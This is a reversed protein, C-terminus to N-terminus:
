AVDICRCAYVRTATLFILYTKSKTNQPGINRTCSCNYQASCFTLNQNQILIQPLAHKSRTINLKHRTDNIEKAFKIMWTLVSFSSLLYVCKSLNIHFPGFHDRSGVLLIKTCASLLINVKDNIFQLNFFHHIQLNYVINNTAMCSSIGKIPLSSCDADECKGIRYSTLSGILWITRIKM